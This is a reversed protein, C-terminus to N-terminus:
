YCKIYGNRIEKVKELDKFYSNNRLAFVMWKSKFAEDIIKNLASLEKFFTDVIEKQEQYSFEFTLFYKEFNSIMTELKTEVKWDKSKKAQKKDWRNYYYNESYAYIILGQWYHNKDLEYKLNIIQDSKWKKIEKKAEKTESKHAKKDLIEELKKFTKEFLVNSRKLNKNIKELAFKIRNIEFLCVKKTTPEKYHNLLIRYGYNNILYSNLKPLPQIKGIKGDNWTRISNLAINKVQYELYSNGSIDMWSKWKLEEM